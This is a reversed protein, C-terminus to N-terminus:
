RASIKEARRIRERLIMRLTEQPLALLAQRVQEPPKHKLTSVFQGAARLLEILEDKRLLLLYNGFKLAWPSLKPSRQRKAIAM